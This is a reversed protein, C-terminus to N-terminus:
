QEPTELTKDMEQKKDAERQTLKMQVRQLIVYFWWGNYLILFPAAIKWNVIPITPSPFAVAMLSVFPIGFCVIFAIILWLIASTTRFSNRKKM